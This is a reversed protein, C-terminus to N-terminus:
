GGSGDRLTEVTGGSVLLVGHAQLWLRVQCCLVLQSPFALLFSVVFEEVALNERELHFKLLERIDHEDEVVLINERTM